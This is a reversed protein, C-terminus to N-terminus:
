NFKTGALKWQGDVKKFIENLILNQGELFIKLQTEDDYTPTEELVHFGTANYMAGNKFGGPMVGEPLDKFQQAAGNLMDGTLSALYTKGDSQTIAWLVSQFSSQPASYGSFTYDKKRVSDSYVLPANDDKATAIQNSLVANAYELQSLGEKLQGLEGRIQMLETLQDEPLSVTTQIATAQSKQLNSVQDALQQIESKLSTIEDDFKNEARHELVFSAGITLVIAGVAIIKLTNM